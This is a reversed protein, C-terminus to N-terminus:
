ISTVLGKFTSHNNQYLMQVQKCIKGVIENFEIPQDAHVHHGAEKIFILCITKGQLDQLTTTFDSIYNVWSDSGTIITVPKENPLEKFREFLPNKAFVMKDSVTQFAVEGSPKQANCHFIYKTIPNDEENYMPAYKAVIDSRLRGVLSPGWPGAARLASLPNFSTLIKFLKIKWKPIDSFIGTGPEPVPPFGWPDDLILHLVRESYKITYLSSVYGGFSHGLLIFREIRMQIRWDEISQIFLADVQLCDTPFVPRSSRAFGLLDIAYVNREKSLADLNWIWFAAGAAFGHILLLPPREQDDHTGVKLTRILNKNPIEIFKSEHQNRLVGYMKMEAEEFLESSTPTWRPCSSCKKVNSEKTSM